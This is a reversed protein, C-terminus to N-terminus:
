RLEGPLNGGPLDTTPIGARKDALWKRNVVIEARKEAVTARIMKALELIEPDLDAADPSAHLEKSAQEMRDLSMEQSDLSLELADRDIAQIAALKESSLDVYFNRLTEISSHRGQRLCVNERSHGFENVLYFNAWREGEGDRAVVAGSCPDVVREVRGDGAATSALPAAAHDQTPAAQGAALADARASARASVAHDIQLAFLHDPSVWPVAYVIGAGGIVVAYTEGSSCRIQFHTVDYASLSEASRCPLEFADTVMKANALTAADTVVGLPQRVVQAFVPFSVTAGVAFILFRM